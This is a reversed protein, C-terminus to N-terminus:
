KQLRKFSKRYCGPHSSFNGPLHYHKRARKSPQSIQLVGLKTKSICRTFNTRYIHISSRPHEWKRILILSFGFDSNKV